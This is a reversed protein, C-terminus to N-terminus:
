FIGYGEDIALLEEHHSRKPVEPEAKPAPASKNSSTEAPVDGLIMALHRRAKSDERVAKKFAEAVDANGNQAITDFLNESNIDAGGIRITEEANWKKAANRLNTLYRHSDLNDSEVTVSADFGTYYSVKKGNGTRVIKVSLVGYRSALVIDTTDTKETLYVATEFYVLM